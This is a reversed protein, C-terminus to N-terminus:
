PQRRSADHPLLFNLQAWARGAETRAQLLSMRTEVDARRAELVPALEARGGGYAALTAKMREQALPVQQSEIRQARERAANWDALM